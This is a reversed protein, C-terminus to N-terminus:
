CVLTGSFTKRLIALPQQRVIGQLARYNREIMDVSAFIEEVRRVIEKQEELPPMAFKFQDLQSTYIHQILTGTNLQDVFQRFQNSKLLWFCFKTDFGVPVIRAQRQNLLCEEDGSTICVRGLFEDKLSQATLNMVIEQQNIIFVSASKAYHKPLFQTNNDNWQVKGSVNLNGPRLLKIGSNAYDRSPFSKGNQSLGVEEWKVVVWTTPISDLHSFDTVEDPAHTRSWKKESAIRKLRLTKISQVLQRADLNNNARRWVETLKGTVAQTLVAQKFQKILEPINELRAKLQDLHAFLKDLKAVIREQEPLPALPFPHDKIVAQSINPQAGGKGKDIFQQKQSRLYHFLYKANIGEFPQAVACAQNTSAGIGLIACKGITAGYMAIMVSGKPFIKASSNKLGEETLYEQAETLVGDNLEGTKFWPISGGYYEPRGRNPTGGSGWKAITGLTTVTWEDPLKGM